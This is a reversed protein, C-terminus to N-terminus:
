MSISGTARIVRNNTYDYLTTQFRSPPAISKPKSLSASEDDLLTTTLLQYCADGLVKRLGRIKSCAKRFPM